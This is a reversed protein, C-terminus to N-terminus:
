SFGVPASVSRLATFRIAPSEFGICESGQKEFFNDIIKKTTYPTVVQCLDIWDFPLMQSCSLFFANQM